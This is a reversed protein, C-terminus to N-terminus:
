KSFKRKGTFKRKAGFKNNFPKRFFKRPGNGRDSSRPSSNGRFATPHTFIKPQRIEKYKGAELENGFSYKLLASIIKDASYEELLDRSLANFNTQEGNQILKALDAIIKNKKIQIIEEVEPLKEKRITANTIKQFFALKRYESPTVISLATGKKGARGTRGIRHTYSEPDRPITYNVVHTLDNVDIGRAAVDTAVLINIQKAKFKAFIKERQNQAIDGHIGEAQHGYFKLRSAVGDVEVKTRCFILGYFDPNIDIIRRLAEFKDQESVEIYTQDTLATTMQPKKVEVFEYNPMYKKALTLIRPSLTASFLMMRKNKPTHELISEVDEIFGMNLMEDAEDLVFFSLNELNLKKRELHDIIRGPTGVVIHVGSRLQGLQVGISAGGYIAAVKIRKDGKFDNLSQAIQVALERTPALILAQVQNIEPNVMEIIPLGFAATKGTGTAAKGVIDLQEKLVLPICKEQIPTPEKFGQKDLVELMAQSLGLDAFKVNSM